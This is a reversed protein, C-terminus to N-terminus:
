TYVWKSDKAKWAHVISKFFDNYFPKIRFPEASDNIEASAIWLTDGSHEHDHIWIICSTLTFELQTLEKFVTAVLEALEDSNQMAMARARVRELGLEIKAKWTQTEAKQIDIFRQYALQFVNRFHKFLGIAEKNLPGYTSLGLAGPGISYFYYHLSNVKRLYPDVFQGSKKQYKIWESREAGKFTKTLFGEPDKLLKRVFAAVTKQKKYGIATITTKKTLLFYEYNLYSATPEDIVAIQVNRIEKIGLNELEKSIIRCVKLMDKAQKMGMAVTRVRELSSEIELERNKNELEITRRKIADRLRLNEAKVEDTNLQEGEGTRSDPLSGHQNVIKWKNNKKVFQTSLRGENYLNWTNDILVYFDLQENIVISDGVAMLSIKRNRMDAKGAIQHATATYYKVASKKNKFVEGKASGVIHCNEDLISAFMKMDGKVYYDWYANYVKLIEAELKKTLKM